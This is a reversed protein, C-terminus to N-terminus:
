TRDQRPRIINKSLYIDRILAKRPKDPDVVLIINDGPQLGKIQKTEQVANGTRYTQDQFSYAYELRGRGRYFNASTITGPVEVGRKFHSQISRIRWILLPLGVVTLILAFNLLFPAVSPTLPDRGRFGPFFGFFTIAVYMAWIVLPFIVALSATYDTGIIRFASPVLLQPSM